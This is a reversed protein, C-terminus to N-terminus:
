ATKGNVTKTYAVEDEIAKDISVADWPFGNELCFAKIANVVYGKKLSGASSNSRKLMYDIDKYTTEAEAVLRKTEVAIANKAAEAKAEAEAREQETKASEAAEKAAKYDKASKVIKLVLPLVTTVLTAVIGIIIYVLYLMKM